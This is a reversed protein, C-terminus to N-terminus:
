PVADGSESSVSNSFIPVYTFDPLESKLSPLWAKKVEPFSLRRNHSSTWLTKNHRSIQTFLYIQIKIYLIHEPFSM